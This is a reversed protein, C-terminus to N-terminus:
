QPCCKTTKVSIRLKEIAVQNASYKSGTQIYTAPNDSLLGYSSLAYYLSFRVFEFSINEAPQM